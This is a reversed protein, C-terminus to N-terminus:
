VRPRFRHQMLLALVGVVVGWFAAGLGALSVGSLTVLFTLTAADRHQPNQVAAQLSTAITGLLAIGATAAVLEAPVALLLATVLSSYLGVLVYALGCVSAAIYRKGPDPHAEKGMCISATIASLGLAFAGFPALLFTAGGTMTILKSTPMDYGSARIAAVGPLNQSAMTVIFLPLALGLVASWSFAPSVWVPRTLSLAELQWSFQGAMVTYVVALLLAALTAYRASYRKVVLYGLLMSIVLASQTQAGLFGQLSFRVLVGALLASALAIPIRALLKEFWGSVGFIGILAACLMFAGIAEPMGFSVGEAHGAVALVAAGPTSWAVMVPQRLWLSPLLSCLGMGLGLAWIWSDLQASTAGFGQAASFVIAVSSSFGVLVAILGASAASLSFDQALQSLKPISM